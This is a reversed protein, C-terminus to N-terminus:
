KQEKANEKARVEIGTVQDIASMVAKFGAIEGRGVKSRIRAELAELMRQIAAAVSRGERTLEILFSRRDQPHPLRRLFGQTELRDLVSTLTSPKYGLVRNLEAIPCPGYTQLYSILHGEGTGLGLKACPIELRLGIQRTAKHIPSVFQLKM